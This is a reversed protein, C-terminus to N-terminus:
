TGDVVELFLRAREQRRWPLTAVWYILYGVGVCAGIAVVVAVVALFVELSEPTTSM